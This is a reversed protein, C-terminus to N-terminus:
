MMAMKTSIKPSIMAPIAVALLLLTNEKVNLQSPVRSNPPTVSNEKSHTSVQSTQPFILNAAPALQKSSMSTVTDFDLM